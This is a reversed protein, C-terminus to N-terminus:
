VILFLHRLLTLLNTISSSGISILVGGRRGFGMVTTDVDGLVSKGLDPLLPSIIRNPIGLLAKSIKGPM